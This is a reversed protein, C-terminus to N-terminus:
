DSQCSSLSSRCRVSDIRLNLKECLCFKKLFFLVKILHVLTIPAMAFRQSIVILVRHDVYQQREKSEIRAAISVLVM